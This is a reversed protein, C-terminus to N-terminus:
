LRSRCETDPSNHRSEGMWSSFSGWPIALLPLRWALPAAEVAQNTAGKSERPLVGEPDVIGLASINLTAIM